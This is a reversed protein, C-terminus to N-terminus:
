IPRVAVCMISHGFPLRGSGALYRAEAILMALLLRNLWPRKLAAGGITLGRYLGRVPDHDRFVHVRQVRIKLSGYLSPFFNVYTARRVDFGAAELRAAVEELTYQQFNPDPREARPLGCRSNTRLLLVGSPCLVRKLEKLALLDAGDTPLHQLVDNCLVLDFCRDGFPLHTISSQSLAREGRGRCFALASRSIDVGTISGARLVGRAWVLSAGTGCGADLVRWGGAREAHSRLLSLAIARTGVYWWHEDEFDRIRQYYERSYIQPASAM